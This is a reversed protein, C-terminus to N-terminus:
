GGMRVRYDDIAARELVPIFPGLEVDLWGSSKDSLGIQAERPWAGIVQLRDATPPHSADLRVNRAQGEERAKAWREPSAADWMRRLEAFVHPAEPRQWQKHLASDLLDALYMRDLAHATAQSGAVRAALLDARFEAAQQQAGVLNLMLSYVGLPVLAMLRSMLNSVAQLHEAQYEMWADPTLVSVAHDLVNLAAAVVGSRTPDGSRLHALEHAIVAVREQPRMGFWLGLGLGLTPTGRWGTRAMFANVEPTLVIRVPARVDLAGAVQAVLAHLQPAQEATVEVGWPAPFRPRAVWAFGLLGVGGLACLLRVFVHAEGWLGLAVLAWWLGVASLAAYVLIVLVALAQGLAARASPAPVAREVFADRLRASERQAM